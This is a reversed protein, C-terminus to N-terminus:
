PPLSQNATRVMIYVCAIVVAMLMVYLLTDGVWPNAMTSSSSSSSSPKGKLNSLFTRPTPKTHVQNLKWRLSNMPEFKSM